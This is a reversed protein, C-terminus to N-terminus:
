SRPPLSGTGRGGSRSAHHRVGSGTGPLLHAHRSSGGGDDCDCDFTVFVATGISTSAPLPAQVDKPIQGEEIQRLLVVADAGLKVALAALRKLEGEEAQKLTKPLPQIAVIWYDDEPETLYFDVDAVRTAAPGTTDPWVALPPPAVAVAALVLAALM